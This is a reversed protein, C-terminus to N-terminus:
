AQECIIICTTYWKQSCTDVFGMRGGAFVVKKRDFTCNSCGGRLEHLVLRVELRCCNSWGRLVRLVRLALYHPRDRIYTRNVTAREVHSELNEQVNSPLNTYPVAPSLLTQKPPM